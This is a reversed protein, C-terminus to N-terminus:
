AEIEIIVPPKPYEGITALYAEPRVYSGPDAIFRDVVAERATQFMAAVRAADEFPKALATQEPHEAAVDHTIVNFLTSKGSGNRGVFGIRSGDPIRVSAHEILLRGAIRVSSVGCIGPIFQFATHSGSPRRDNVLM